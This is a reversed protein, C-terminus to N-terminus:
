EYNSYLEKIKGYMSKCWDDANMGNINKAHEELIKLIKCAGIEYSNYNSEICEDPTMGGFLHIFFAQIAKIM